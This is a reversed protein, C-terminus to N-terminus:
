VIPPAPWAAPRTPWVPNVPWGAQKQTRSLMIRYTRWDIMPQVLTLAEAAEEPTIIGLDEADALEEARTKIATLKAAMEYKLEQLAQSSVSPWNIPPLSFVGDAYYCGPAWECSGPVFGESPDSNKQVAIGNEILFYCTQETM